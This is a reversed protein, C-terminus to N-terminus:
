LHYRRYTCSPVMKEKKKGYFHSYIIIESYVTGNNIHLFRANPWWNPHGKLSPDSDVFILDGERANYIVMTVYLLSM